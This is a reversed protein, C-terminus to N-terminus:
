NIAGRDLVQLNRCRHALSLLEAHAWGLFEVHLLLLSVNFPNPSLFFDDTKEERMDYEVFLCLLHDVSQSFTEFVWFNRADLICIVIASLPELIDEM